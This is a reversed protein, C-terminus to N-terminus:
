RPQVLLEELPVDALFKGRKYAHAIERPTLISTDQLARMLWIGAQWNWAHAIGLPFGGHRTVTHSAIRKALADHYVPKNEMFRYAEKHNAAYIIELMTSKGVAPTKVYQQERFFPTVFVLNGSMDTHVRVTSYDIRPGSTDRTFFPRPEHDGGRKEYQRKVKTFETYTFGGFAVVINRFEREKDDYFVIARQVM